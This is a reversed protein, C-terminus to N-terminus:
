EVSYFIATGLIAILTWTHPVAIRDCPQQSEGDDRCYMNTWARHMSRVKTATREVRVEVLAYTCLYQLEETSDSSHIHVSLDVPFHHNFKQLKNTDRWEYAIM